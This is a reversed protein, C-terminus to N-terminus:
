NGDQYYGQIVCKADDHKTEPVVLIDELGVVAMNMVQDEAEADRM